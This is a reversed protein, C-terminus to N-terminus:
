SCAWFRSSTVIGRGEQTQGAEDASKYRITYMHVIPLFALSLLNMGSWLLFSLKGREFDRSFNVTLFCSFQIFKQQQDDLHMSHQAKSDGCGLRRPIQLLIM